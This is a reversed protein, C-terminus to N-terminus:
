YRPNYTVTAVYRGNQMNVMDGMGLVWIPYEQMPAGQPGAAWIYLVGNFQATLVKSGVPMYVTQEAIRSDFITFQRIITPNAPVCASGDAVPM